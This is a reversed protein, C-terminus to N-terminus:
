KVTLTKIIDPIEQEMERYDDRLDNNGPITQVDTPYGLAFVKQDDEEIIKLTIIESIIKGETEWEERSYVYIDFLRGTEEMESKTDKHFVSVVRGNEEIVYKDKWTEPFTLNFGHQENEYVIGASNSCATLTIILACALVLLLISRKKM